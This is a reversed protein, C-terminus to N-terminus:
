IFTFTRTVNYREDITGSAEADVDVSAAPCSEIVPMEGGYCTDTINWGGIPESGGSKFDVDKCRDPMDNPVPGCSLLFLSSAVVLCLYLPRLM